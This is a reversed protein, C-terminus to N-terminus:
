TRFSTQWPLPDQQSTKRPYSDSTKSTVWNACWMALSYCWKGLWASLYLHTSSTTVMQLISPPPGCTDQASTKKPEKSVIITTTWWWGRNMGDDVLVLSWRAEFEQIIKFWLWGHQATIWWHNIILHSIIQFHHITCRPCHYYKVCILPEEYQVLSRWDSRSTCSCGRAGPNVCRVTKQIHSM